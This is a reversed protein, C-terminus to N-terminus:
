QKNINEYYDMWNKPSIKTKGNYSVALRKEIMYKNLFLDEYYVDALIRGYKETKLNKLKVVKNMIINSLEQKAIEACKKEEITKGKIEPCDIGNLRVAFRFMPSESYPLKSAITITDGDYVKIVIGEEIPPIFQITNKWNIESNKIRICLNNEEPEHKENDNENDNENGPVIVDDHTINFCCWNKFM